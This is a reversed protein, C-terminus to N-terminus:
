LKAELWEHAKLDMWASYSTRDYLRAVFVSDNSDVVSMIQDRITEAEYRSEILWLNQLPRIAEGLSIIKKYLADYNQGIKNLDYTIIYVM